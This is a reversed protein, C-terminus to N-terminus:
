MNLICYHLKVPNDHGQNIEWDVAGCRPAGVITTFLPSIDEATDRQLTVLVTSTAIIAPHSLTGSTAGQTDYIGFEIKM